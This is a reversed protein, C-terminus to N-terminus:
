TVKDDNSKIKTKLFEKNYISESDFLRKIDASFKNWITEDDGILFYMWETQEDYSKVYASTKSLM